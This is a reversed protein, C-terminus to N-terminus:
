RDDIGAGETAGVFAPCTACGGADSEPEEQVPLDLPEGPDMEFRQLEATLFVGLFQGLRGYPTDPARTQLREAFGVGWRGLHAELFKRQAERCLDLEESAHDGLVGYAEKVCLFHMFETEVSLHDLREHFSPEVELGFAQYFGGIDALTQSKEFIHAQGYEAEYPPCEKSITHGFCDVYARRLGDVDLGKLDAKLQALLHSVDACTLVDLSAEVSGAREQMVSPHSDDPYGFGTALLNYASSRALPEAAHAQFTM